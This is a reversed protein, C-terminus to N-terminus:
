VLGEGFYWGLDMYSM